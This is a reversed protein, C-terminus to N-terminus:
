CPRGTTIAYLVRATSEIQSSATFGSSSLLEHRQGIMAILASCQYSALRADIQTSIRGAAHAGRVMRAFGRTLTRMQSARVAVFQKHGQNALLDTVAFVSGAQRWLELSARVLARAHDLGDPGQWDRRLIEGLGDTSTQEALALLLDNMDSFYAYVSSQLAGARRAIETIKIESLPKERLLSRAADLIRTRTQLGKPSLSANEKVDTM